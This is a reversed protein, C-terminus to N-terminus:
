TLALTAWIGLGAAAIAGATLVVYLVAGFWFYAPEEARDYQIRQVYIKGTSLGTLVNKAFLFALITFATSALPLM